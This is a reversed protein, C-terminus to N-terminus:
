LSFCSFENQKSITINTSNSLVKILDEFYTYVLNVRELIINDIYSKEDNDLHEITLHKKYFGNITYM